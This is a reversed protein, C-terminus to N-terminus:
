SRWEYWRLDYEEDAKRCFDEWSDKKDDRDEDPWCSDNVMPNEIEM